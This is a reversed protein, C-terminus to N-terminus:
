ELILPSIVRQEKFRTGDWVLSVDGVISAKSILAPAFAGVCHGGERNRVSDYHIGPVAHRQERGFIQSQQYDIPDYIARPITADVKARIDRVKGKVSLALQKKRTDQEPANGDAFVRKLHYASERVATDLSDAVYLVGYSGDSFRSATPFDFPRQVYAMASERATGILEGLTRRDEDTDALSSLANSQLPYALRVFTATVRAIM